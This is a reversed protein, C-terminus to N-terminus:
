RVEDEHYQGSYAAIPFSLWKFLISAGADTPSM